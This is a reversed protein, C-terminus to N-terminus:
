DRKKFANEFPNNFATKPKAVPNARQPGTAPASKEPKPAAMVTEAAGSKMSLSVRGRELDVELITVTVKQHVKVVERPESVFRDCLESLHVLGDRHVGIDVFAGFATVNTVIGPLKMGRELDTLKEVGAAFSFPEFSKRPDRGPKALESLIDVLTPIGVKETVYRAPDIKERFSAERILDAVSCGLDTAMKEVIPYSEPHVASADLPNKGDSIRLFGASQEFARPGLRTVKKLEARKGFPGNKERHSVINAALQPGLGSIYSLLQPSASNVEVGVANVCSAVVDDLGKKLETQDVDHQYQGVGISKPDIKVLEALPDILRRGISVAGRVTLDFDPFEERAVTSASYISAGSEDVMILQIEQPLGLNRIFSETERGATGNGIAIAETLFERSLARIRAGAKESEKAGLHPYITETHVLKGQPDLCVLKCGTRFGPDLAMVKKFGLPPAMLLHRLNEAFVRIAERDARLKSENKMETELSPSLLRKYSDRVAARVQASSASDNKVFIAELINVAEMEPPEIRVTLFGEQEGRRVALVRHSPARAIPEEKDFYDRYQMGEAEKGPVVRSRLMGKTFFLSRLKLRSDGNENVWEAIIDRAGCLADEESAVEKEPSIFSQALDIPDRAPDQEFLALALPELGKERAISARTRRKPRFPLYIDEIETLTGARLIREELRDTLKEQERLSKLVASRRKELVDLQALRDRIAAVLTEDLTGTAEKRYRAIFPVTAGEELLAATASVQYPRLGMERSISDLHDQNM